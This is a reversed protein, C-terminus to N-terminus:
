DDLIWRTLQDACAATGTGAQVRAPPSALTRDWWLGFLGGIAAGISAGLCGLYIGWWLISITVSVPHRYPMFAGLICGAVALTLGGLWFGMAVRNFRHHDPEAATRRNYPRITCQQNGLGTSGPFANVDHVNTSRLTSNLLNEM